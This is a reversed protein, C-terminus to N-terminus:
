DKLTQEEPNDPDELGAAIRDVAGSTGAWIGIWGAQGRDDGGSVIWAGGKVPDHAFMRAASLQRRKSLIDVKIHNIRPWAM